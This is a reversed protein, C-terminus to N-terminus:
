SSFIVYNFKEKKQNKVTKLAMILWGWKLFVNKDKAWEAILDADCSKYQRLRLM